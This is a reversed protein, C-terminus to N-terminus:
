DNTLTQVFGARDGDALFDFPLQFFALLRGPSLHLTMLVIVM